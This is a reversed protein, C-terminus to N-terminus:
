PRALHRGANPEPLLAFGREPEVPLLDVRHEGSRRRHLQLEAQHRLNAFTAPRMKRVRTDPSADGLAELTTIEAATM